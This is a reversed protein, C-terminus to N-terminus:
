IIEEIVPVNKVVLVEEVTIVKVRQLTIVALVIEFMMM